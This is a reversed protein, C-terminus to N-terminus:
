EKGFPSEIDTNISFVYRNHSTSLLEKAPTLAKLQRQVTDLKKALHLGNALNSPTTVNTVTITASAMSM